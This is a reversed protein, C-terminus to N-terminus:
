ENQKAVRMKAAYWTRTALTMRHFQLSGAFAELDAALDPLDINGHKSSHYRESVM